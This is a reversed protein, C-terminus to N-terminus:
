YYYELLSDLSIYDEKSEMLSCVRPPAKEFSPRVNLSFHSRSFCSILPPLILSMIISVKSTPIAKTIGKVFFSSAIFHSIGINIHSTIWAAMKPKDRILFKITRMEM